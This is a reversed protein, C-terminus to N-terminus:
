DWATPLTGVAGYDIGCMTPVSYGAMGLIVYGTNNPDTLTVAITAIIHFPQVQVSGLETNTNRDFIRATGVDSGQSAFFYCRVALSSGAPVKIKFRIEGDSVAMDRFFDPHNTNGAANYDVHGYTPMTVWGYGPTDSYVANQFGTCGAQTPSGAANFDLRGSPVSSAVPGVGNSNAATSGGANTATVVCRVYKSVESATLVFTNTTAGGINTLNTTFGSDDARQWQYSYSTPSNLWTGTTCSLTQGQTATGTVAPAVTNSPAAASLWTLGGRCGLGGAIRGGGTSLGV